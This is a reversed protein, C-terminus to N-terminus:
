RVAKAPDRQYSTIIQEGAARMEPNLRWCIETEGYRRLLQEVDPNLMDFGWKQRFYRYHHLVRQWEDGPPRDMGLRQKIAQRTASSFPAGIWHRTIHWARRRPPQKAIRRGVHHIVRVEPTFFAKLGERRICLSLDLDDFWVPAYGTDYGGLSLAVDRRYMMCCGIGGDVEAWSDCEACEGERRRRVRQHYTRQGIPETIMAGRDHFGDPGLVDVGCTHIEGWDFVVKPTLVGIRRDSGFFAVMRDLWGPTDIAADGDLQVVLEGRAHDLGANLADIVGGGTHEREILEFRAFRGGDRWRRLIRRSGDSSGDDVVVLEANSYTTNSALRELVEDLVLENNRNPMLLSVSPAAAM